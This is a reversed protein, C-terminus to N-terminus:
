DHPDANLGKPGVYILLCPLYLSLHIEPAQQAGAWHLSSETLHPQTDLCYHLTTFSAVRGGRVEEREHM